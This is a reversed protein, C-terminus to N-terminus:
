PQSPAWKEACALSGSFRDCHAVPQWDYTYTTVGADPSTQTLLDRFGNHGSSTVLSRPDIVSTLNDQADCGFITLGSAPDTIQKLRNLEDYHSGSNRALPAAVSTRNGNNDYGFTATVAVTGAANVDKWLQNLTNFVRTRTRTRRLTSSPDYTYEATRNGM